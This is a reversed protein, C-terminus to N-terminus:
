HREASTLDYKQIDLLISPGFGKVFSSLSSLSDSFHNSLLAIVVIGLMPLDGPPLSQALIRRM